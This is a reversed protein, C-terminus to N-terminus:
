IRAELESVKAALEPSGEIRKQASRIGTIITTHDRDFLRGLRPFSYPTRRHAILMAVQRPHALRWRASRSLMDETSLGFAEATLRQIEHVSPHNGIM